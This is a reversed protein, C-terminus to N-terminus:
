QLRNDRNAVLQEEINLFAARKTSLPPFARERQAKIRDLCEDWRSLQRLLDIECLDVSYEFTGKPYNLQPLRKSDFSPMVANCTRACKLCHQLQEQTYQHHLQYLQANIEDPHVLNLLAFKQQTVHLKLAAQYQMSQMLETSVPNWEATPFIFAKCDCITYQALLQEDSLKPAGDLYHEKAFYQRLTHTRGCHVCKVQYERFKAPKKFLGM